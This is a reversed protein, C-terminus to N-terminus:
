YFLFAGDMPCRRDKQGTGPWPMRDSALQGGSLYQLLEGAFLPSRLGLAAQFSPRELISQATRRVLQALQGPTRGQPNYPNDPPTSVGSEAPMIRSETGGHMDISKGGSVASANPTTGAVRLLESNQHLAQRPLGLPKVWVQDIVIQRVCHFMQAGDGNGVVSSHKLPQQLKGGGLPQHVFTYDARESSDLLGGRTGDCPAMGLDSQQQLGGRCHRSANLARVGLEHSCPNEDAIRRPQSEAIHQSYSMVLDTAPSEEDSLLLGALRM